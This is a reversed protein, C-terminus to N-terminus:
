SFFSVTSHVLERLSPHQGIMPSSELDLKKGVAKGQNSSVIERTIPLFM